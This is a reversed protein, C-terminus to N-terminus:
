YPDHGWIMQRINFIIILVHIHPLELDLYFSVLLLM